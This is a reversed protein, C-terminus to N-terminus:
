LGTTSIRLKILIPYFLPLIDASHLRKLIDLFVSFLSNLLIILDPILDANGCPTADSLIM